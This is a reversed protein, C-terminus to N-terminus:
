LRRCRQCTVLRRQGPYRVQEAPVQKGCRALVQKAVHRRKFGILLALEGAWPHLAHVPVSM